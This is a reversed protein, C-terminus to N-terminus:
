AIRRYGVLGVVARALTFGAVAVNNIGEFEVRLFGKPEMTHNLLWSRDVANFVLPLPTPQAVWFNDKHDSIRVNFTRWSQNPETDSLGTTLAQDNLVRGIMREIYLPADFPNGFDPTASQDAIAVASNLTYQRTAFNTLYPLWKEDPEEAQLGVAAVALTVNAARGGISANQISVDIYEGPPLYMPRDLKISMVNYEAARCMPYAVASVYVYGNTITENRWKLQIRFDSFPAASIRVNIKDILVGVAETNRIGQAANRVQSVPDTTLMTVISAPLVVPGRNLLAM